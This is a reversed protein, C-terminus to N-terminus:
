VNYLSTLPLFIIADCVFAFFFFHCSPRAHCWRKEMPRGHFPDRKYRLVIEEQEFMTSSNLPKKLPM